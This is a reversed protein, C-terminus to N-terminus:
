PTIPIPRPHRARATSAARRRRWPRGAGKSLNACETPRPFPEPDLGRGGREEHEVGPRRSSAGTADVGAARVDDFRRSEDHGSRFSGRSRRSRRPCPPARSAPVFPPSVSGWAEQSRPQGAPVTLPRAGAASLRRPTGRSTSAAPRTPTSGEDCAGMPPAASPRAPGGDLASPQTPGHAVVAANGLLSSRPLLESGAERAGNSSVEGGTTPRHHQLRTRTETPSGGHEARPLQAETSPPRQRQQTRSRAVRRMLALIM